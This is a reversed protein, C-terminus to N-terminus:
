FRVSATDLRVWCVAPSALTNLSALFLRASLMSCTLPMSSAVQEGPGEDSLSVTKLTVFMLLMESESSSSSVFNTM